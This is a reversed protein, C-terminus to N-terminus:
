GRTNRLSTFTEHIRKVVPGPKGSGITQNDVKVVPVVEVITGTFFVEGAGMLESITFPEESIKIDLVRAAELVHKRTIGNLIRNNAPHTRLVRDKYIFINSASCETVTGDDMVFVAEAAGEKAARQKALVSALLSTSKIHCMQWRFEPQTIIKVGDSYMSPDREPVHRVTVLLNPKIDPPFVHDRHATGRTIQMYIMAEKIGSQSLLNETITTLQERNWPLELEIANASQELRQLHDDMAFPIGDYVRIVEYVGDGFVFGRDNISVYADEFAGIWGNFYVLEQM